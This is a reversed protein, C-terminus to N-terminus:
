IKTGLKKTPRLIALMIIATVAGATCVLFAPHYDGTVDFIYGTVLPGLAAGITYSLSVFGFILGHSGLGFLRAVMPSESSAMGGLALGLVVAFGYFMGVGRTLLLGVLSASMLMFGIIYIWRSGIRDGLGGLGFNGLISVGSALALINAANIAPIGLDIAYPVVHVMMAASCFGYFVCVACYLWFQATAVAEGLSYAKAAALAPQKIEDEGYPRQGMQLPTHRLFQAGSVTVILVIGGQIMYALRWDYAAMLRSILPPAMFGGVGVGAAVIGTMLSRRGVFWKTVFSMLPVWIGSLGIGIIVGFFLYLHWLAGTQSMLFYGLAILLGCFTLVLRPGFRDALGGMVVGLVGQMVMSLSFAGSTMASTWGFETLLPKFFVGFSFFLGFSVVLIFFAVMVVIYGYFFRPETKFM